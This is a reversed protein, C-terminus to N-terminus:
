SAQRKGMLIQKREAESHGGWVGYPEEVALAWELCPLRVPCEACIAKAQAERAERDPKHEFSPPPFFVSADMERCLGHEQWETSMAESLRPLSVM